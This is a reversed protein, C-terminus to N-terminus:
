EGTTLYSRVSTLTSSIRVFFSLPPECTQAVVEVWLSTYLPSSSTNPTCRMRLFLSLDLGCRITNGQEVKPYTSTGM